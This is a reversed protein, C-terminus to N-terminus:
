HPAGISVRPVGETSLITVRETNRSIEEGPIRDVWGSCRVDCKSARSYRWLGAEFGAHVNM